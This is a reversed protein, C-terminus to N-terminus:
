KSRVWHLSSKKEEKSSTTVYVFFRKPSIICDQKWMLEKLSYWEYYLSEKEEIDKM